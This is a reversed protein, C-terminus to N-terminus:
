LLGEGPAGGPVRQDAAAGRPGVARRDEGAVYISGSSGSIIIIISIIMMVM